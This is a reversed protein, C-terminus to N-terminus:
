SRLSAWLDHFHLIGRRLGSPAFRLGPEEGAGNGRGPGVGGEQIGSREMWAVIRFGMRVDTNEFSHVFFVFLESIPVRLRRARRSRRRFNTPTSLNQTLSACINCYSNTTGAHVAPVWTQSPHTRVCGAPRSAPLRHRCSPSQQHGFGDFLPTPTSPHVGKEM